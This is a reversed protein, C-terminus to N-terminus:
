RGRGGLAKGFLMPSIIVVVFMGILIWFGIFYVIDYQKPVPGLLEVAKCYYSSENETLSCFEQSM